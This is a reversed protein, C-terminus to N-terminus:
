RLLFLIEAEAWDRLDIVEENFKKVRATELDAMRKKDKEEYVKKEKLYAEIKKEIEKSIWKNSRWVEFFYKVKLREEGKRNQEIKEGKGLREEYILNIMLELRNLTHEADNDSQVKALNNILKM